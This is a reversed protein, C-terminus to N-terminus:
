IVASGARRDHDEKAHNVSASSSRDQCGTALIGRLRNRMPPDPKTTCGSESKCLGNRAPCTCTQMKRSSSCSSALHRRCPMGEAEAIRLGRIEGSAGEPLSDIALVKRWSSGCVYIRKVGQTLGDLPKRACGPSCRPDVCNCHKSIAPNTMPRVIAAM